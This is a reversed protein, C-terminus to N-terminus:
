GENEQKMVKLCDDKSPKYQEDLLHKSLMSFPMQVEYSEVLNPNVLEYTHYVCYKNGKNEVISGGLEACLDIKEEEKREEKTLHPKREKLNSPSLIEMEKKISTYQPIIKRHYALVAQRIIESANISGTPEKLSEIMECMADSFRITFVNSKTKKPQEDSM